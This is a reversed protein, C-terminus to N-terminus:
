TMHFNQFVQAKLIQLFVQYEFRINLKTLFELIHLHLVKEVQKNM